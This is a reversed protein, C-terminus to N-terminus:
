VVAAGATETETQQALQQALFAARNQRIKQLSQYMPDNVMAERDVTAKPTPIIAWASQSIATSAPEIKGGLMAAITEARAQALLPGSQGNVSGPLSAAVKAAVANSMTAFGNNDLTAVVKGNVTVRAYDKYAPNNSLDAPRAYLGELVNQMNELQASFTADDAEAINFVHMSKPDIRKVQDLSIRLRSDAGAATGMDTM